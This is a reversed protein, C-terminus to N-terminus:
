ILILICMYQNNLKCIHNSKDEKLHLHYLKSKFTKLKNLERIEGPLSNWYRTSSFQFTKEGTASKSNARPINLTCSDRLTRTHMASRKTLKGQLQKPCINNNIIKYILYIFNFVILKKKGLCSHRNCSSKEYAQGVAKCYEYKKCKRWRWM